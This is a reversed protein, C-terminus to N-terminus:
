LPCYEYLNIWSQDSSIVDPVTEMHKNLFWTLTQGGNGSSTESHLVLVREAPGSSM